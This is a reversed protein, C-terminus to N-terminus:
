VEDPISFYEQYPRYLEREKAIQERSGVEYKYSDRSSREKMRDDIHKQMAVFSSEPVKISFYDYIKRATGVPNKIFDGYQV